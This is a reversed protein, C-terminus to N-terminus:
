QTETRKRGGSKPFLGFRALKQSVAVPEKM